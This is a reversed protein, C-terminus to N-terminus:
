YTLFREIIQNVENPKELMVMHGAEEIIYLESNKIKQKLYQSYKVPTLLDEKGCIILTRYEINEVKDMYNFKDCALFDRLTV